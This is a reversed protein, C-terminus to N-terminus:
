RIIRTRLRGLRDDVSHHRPDDSLGVDQSHAVTARGDCPGELQGPAAVDDHEGALSVFCRLGNTAIDHGKIVARNSQFEQSSSATNLKISDPPTPKRKASKTVGM